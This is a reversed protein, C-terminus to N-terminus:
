RLRMFRRHSWFICDDGEASRYKQQSADWIRKLRSNVQFGVEPAIERHWDTFRINGDREAIKLAGCNATDEFLQARDPDSDAIRLRDRELKAHINQQLTAADM